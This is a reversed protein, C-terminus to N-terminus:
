SEYVKNKTGIQAIRAQMARGEAYEVNSLYQFGLGIVFLPLVLQFGLTYLLLYAAQLLQFSLSGTDGTFHWDLLSMYLGFVPSSLLLYYVLTVFLLMLLVGITGGFAYRFQRWAESLSKGFSREEMVQFYLFYSLLPILFLSIWFLAPTILFLSKFFTVGLFFRLGHKRLFSGLAVWRFCIKTSGEKQAQQLIFVSVAWVVTWNLLSIFFFVPNYPYYGTIKQIYEGGNSFFDTAPLRTEPFLVMVQILSLPLIISGLVRLLLRFNQRYLEFMDIFVDGLERVREFILQRRPQPAPEREVEEGRRSRAVRGPYWVFYLYIFVFSSIIIGAKLADPLETHGTVFGELFGAVIFVPVLGILITIGRQASMRFATLRDYTGPFLLGRGMAMGAGGAIVISSIELAGHIWITLFSTLFLGRQVFFYQFTGVMIGNYIVVVLTGISSLVGSIFALFAVRINNITIRLFSYAEDGDKYVAMPDGEAINNETMRVYMDGLIVRPFDADYETSLVGVLVALLFVTLSILLEPRSAYLVLPLDTRWFALVKSGRAKRNRYIRQFVQKALSNLYVRVSRNPYFTRAYSLDDTITIFLASIEDPDKEKQKSVEEFRAWKEQNTAIFRSEKM